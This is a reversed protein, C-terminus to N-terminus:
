LREGFGEILDRLKKIAEVCHTMFAYIRGSKRIDPHTLLWLEDNLEAEAAGVRILGPTIDGLMCRLYGVGLGAAIAAAVGAVSDTRYAINDHHAREEIFKSAKLGSLTETYSVWQCDFLAGTGPWSAVSNPLCVYPRDEHHPLDGVIVISRILRGIFFKSVPAQRVGGRERHCSRGGAGGHCLDVGRGVGGLRAVRTPRVRYQRLASKQRYQKHPRWVAQSNLPASCPRPV